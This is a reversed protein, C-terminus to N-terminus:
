TKNLDMLYGTKDCLPCTNEGIPVVVQKTVGTAIAYTETSTM